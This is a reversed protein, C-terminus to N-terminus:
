DDLIDWDGCQNADVPAKEVPESVAIKGEGNMTSVSADLPEPSAARRKCPGDDILAIDAVFCWFRLGCGL